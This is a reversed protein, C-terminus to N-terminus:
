WLAPVDLLFGKWLDRGGIAAYDEPASMEIQRQLVQMAYNGRCIRSVPYLLLLVIRVIIFVTLRVAEISGNYPAATMFYIGFYFVAVFLVAFGIVAPSWIKGAQSMFERILLYHEYSDRMIYPIVDDIPRDLGVIGEDSTNSSSNTGVTRNTMTMRYRGTKQKPPVAGRDRVSNSHDFSQREKRSSTPSVADMLQSVPSKEKAISQGNGSSNRDNGHSNTNDEVVRVRRLQSFRLTWANIMSHALEAGFSISVLAVLVAAGFVFQAYSTTLWGLTMILEFFLLKCDSSSRLGDSCNAAVLSVFRIINIYFWFYFPLIFVIFLLWKKHSDKRSKINRKGIGCHRTQFKLCVNLLEYYTLSGSKEMFEQIEIDPSDSSHDKQTEKKTKVEDFSKTVLLKLSSLWHTSYGIVKKSHQLSNHEYFDDNKKRLGSGFSQFPSISISRDLSQSVARNDTVNVDRDNSKEIHLHSSYDMGVIVSSINRKFLTMVCLYVVTSVVPFGIIWSFNDSVTHSYLSHLVCLLCLNYANLVLFLQCTRHHFFFDIFAKLLSATDDLEDYQDMVYFHWLRQWDALFIVRKMEFQVSNSADEKAEEDDDSNYSDVRVVTAAISPEILLEM